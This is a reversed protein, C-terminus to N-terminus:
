LYFHLRTHVQFPSVDFMPMPSAMPLLPSGPALHQMPAPMTSTTRQTSVMNMNNIEGESIGGGSSTANHKWEPQKGSPMYSAGMFSLGVQGFQGLRAYHNYVFMHPAQVGPIVGPPSIFPGSFGAPPGYFSEVSPHCQQWTGPHGQGLLTSKQSESQTGGSEEHQKFAFIPGSLM